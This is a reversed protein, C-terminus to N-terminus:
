GFALVLGVLSQHLFEVPQVILQKILDATDQQSTDIRIGVETLYGGNLLTDVEQATEQILQCFQTLLLTCLQLAVVQTGHHSLLSTYRQTFHLGLFAVTQHTCFIGQLLTHDSLIM